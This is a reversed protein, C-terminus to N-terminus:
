KCFHCSRSRHEDSSINWIVLVWNKKIYPYKWALKFWNSYGNGIKKRAFYLSVSFSVWLNQVMTINISIVSLSIFLVCIHSLGTTRSPMMVQRQSETKPRIKIHQMVNKCNINSWIRSKEKEEQLEALCSCLSLDRASEWDTYLM